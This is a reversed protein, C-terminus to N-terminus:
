AVVEKSELLEEINQMTYRVSRRGALKIVKLKKAHEFNILTQICVGLIECAEARTVLNPRAPRGDPEKVETLEAMTAPSILGSDAFAKLAQRVIKSENPTM